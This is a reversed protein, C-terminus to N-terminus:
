WFPRKNVVQPSAEEEEKFDYYDLGYLVFDPKLSIIKSIDSLRKEPTDAGFARGFVKINDNKISLEDQLYSWNLINVHSSGIIVVSLENQKLNLPKVIRSNQEM